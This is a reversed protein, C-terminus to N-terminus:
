VSFWHATYHSVQMISYLPPPPTGQSGQTRLVRQHEKSGEGINEVLIKMLVGFDEEGLTMQLCPLHFHFSFVLIVDCVTNLGAVVTIRRFLLTNHQSVNMSRLVGKVQVGPIKTFWSAALNRHILLELNIPQLIEIDPQQSDRKM